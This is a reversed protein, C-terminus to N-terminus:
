LTVGGDEVDDIGSCGKVGSPKEDVLGGPVDLFGQLKILDVNVLARRFRNNNVYSLVKCSVLELLVSPGERYRDLFDGDFRVVSDALDFSVM